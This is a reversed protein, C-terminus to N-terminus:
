HSHGLKVDEKKFKSLEIEWLIEAKLSEDQLLTNDICWLSFCKLELAENKNKRSKYGLQVLKNM